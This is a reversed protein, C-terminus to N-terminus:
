KGPKLLSDIKDIYDLSDDVFFALEPVIRLQNRVKQGLTHRIRSTNQLVSDLITEGDSSPFFSLYIKAVSLDPSIRVTTVTIMKGPAFEIGMIRLIEALEKQLLRSIKKQRTSDM